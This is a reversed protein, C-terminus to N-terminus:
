LVFEKYKKFIDTEKSTKYIIQKNGKLNWKKVQYAVYVAPDIYQFSFGKIKTEEKFLSDVLPYHTCAYLIHTAKVQDAYKLVDVIDSSVAQIDGSEINGALHVPSFTSFIVGKEQLINQYVESAITAKTGIILVHVDAKFTIEHMADVMDIYRDKRINMEDLLKETTFVSMSNCASVFHTVGNKKLISLINKIYGVIESEQKNGYPANACDGFYITDVSTVKQVEKLVSFGGVGSDFIGLLPKEEM